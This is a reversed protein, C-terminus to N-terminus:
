ARWVNLPSFGAVGPFAQKLDVALREVVQRGYGKTRQAESILRGIDWYLALLERNAAFGAKIRAAQVRAKIDALLPAYDAPLAAVAKSSKPSNTTTATAAAALPATNSAPAAAAALQAARLLAEARAYQDAATELLKVASQKATAAWAWAALDAPLSREWRATLAAAAADPDNAALKVLALTALEANDRGPAVMRLALYRTPGSQLAQLSAAAQPNALSVAHAVARPRNIEMALRAKRWADAPTLVRADILTSAMLSCGEDAADRQALWAQRAADRVPHGALHDVLLAYCTVERDDNLKFRPFDAAFHVWDRRKGLELLWDNRLRDEVYTGSWRLYFADLDTQQLEALRLNADWYAVWAALPHDAMTAADTAGAAAMGRLEMLRAADRKNFASNADVVWQEAATRPASSTGPQAWASSTVSLACALASCAKLVRWWAARAARHTAGHASDHASIARASRYRAKGTSGM